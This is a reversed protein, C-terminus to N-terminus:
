ALKVTRRKIKVPAYNGKKVLKMKKGPETLYLGNKKAVLVQLGLAKNERKADETALKAAEKLITIDSKRNTKKKM